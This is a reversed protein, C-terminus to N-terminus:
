PTCLLLPFCSLVLLFRFCAFFFLFLVVLGCVFGVCFWVFVGSVGCGRLVRQQLHSLHSPHSWTRVPCTFVSRHPELAFCSHGLPSFIMPAMFEFIVAVSPCSGHLLLWVLCLLFWFVCVFCFWGMLWTFRFFLSILAPSLCFDWESAYAHKPDSILASHLCSWAPMVCWQLIWFSPLRGGGGALSMWMSFVWHDGLQLHGWVIGSVVLALRQRHGTWYRSTTSAKGWAQRSQRGKWFRQQTRSTVVTGFTDRIGM